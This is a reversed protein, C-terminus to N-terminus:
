QSLATESAAFRRALLRREPEQTALSLAIKLDDLSERHLGLRRRLEGRAAYAIGYDHLGGSAILDDILPLAEEEGDRMALAVARNLAVIPSAETEIMRDYLAVIASWDTEAASGARSHVAAVAAQLSYMGPKPRSLAISALRAGEQALDTAWLSRDQDELLVLDGNEDTRAPRRSEHLLMLALLGVAESDPVLDVILQGLRMAEDSLLTRTAAEGTSAYYGENFVLYTVRLVSDLRTALDEEPPLEYPVNDARIKAKARVIRQAITAPATLFAKGIEEVTLGCVDRLTLAVQGEEPLSPHCCMFILRLTDDQVTEDDPTLAAQDPHGEFDELPAFGMRVKRRILDVAKYRATTVLWARPNKPVGDRPWQALAAAFADQLADEALDLDGLIRVLTALVPRAEERFLAEITAEVPRPM